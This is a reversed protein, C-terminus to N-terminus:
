VCATGSAVTYVISFQLAAGFFGGSAVANYTGNCSPMSINNVTQSGLSGTNTITADGFPISTLGAGPCVGGLQMPAVTVNANSQTVTTTAPCSVSQGILQFNINI